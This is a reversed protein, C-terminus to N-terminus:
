RQSRLDEFLRRERESLGTPLIVKAHVYLDGYGGGDPHPMGQGALRFLRGNQTEPPVRLALTTGKLTPVKVEGGLVADMLPVPVETHLDSGQRQFAPHPSVTVHLYLDGAAGGMRGEGGAGPVRVRSGTDVGPPIRVELRRARRRGPIEVTRLSGHYAEELSVEVAAEIDRGQGTPRSGSPSLGGGGAFFREFVDSMGGLDGPDFTGGPGWRGSGPRFQREMEELQDAHPWQDGYRDYKRRKEPDSLVEHAENIEKFLREADPNGPNVDPHYRRALRRFAQKIEKESATRPVGLTAYYDKSPM